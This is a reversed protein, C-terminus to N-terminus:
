WEWALISTVDLYVRRTRREQIDKCPHIDDSLGGECLDVGVPGKTEWDLSKRSKVEEGRLFIYELLVGKEGRATM